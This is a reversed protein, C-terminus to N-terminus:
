GISHANYGILLHNAVGTVSKGKNYWYINYAPHQQLNWTEYSHSSQHNNKEELITYLAGWCWSHQDTPIFSRTSFLTCKETNIYMTYEAIPSEQWTTHGSSLSYNLEDLTIKLYFSFISLCLMSVICTTIYSHDMILREMARLLWPVLFWMVAAYIQM